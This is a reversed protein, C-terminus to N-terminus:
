SEKILEIKMGEVLDESPIKPIFASNLPTGEAEKYFLGSVFANAYSVLEMVMSSSKIKDDNDELEGWNPLKAIITAGGQLLEKGDPLYYRVVTHLGVVDSGKIHQLVILFSFKVDKMMESTINVERNVEFPIEKIQLIQIHQKMEM